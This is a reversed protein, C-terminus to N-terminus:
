AFLVSLYYFICLELIQLMFIAIPCLKEKDSFTALASLKRMLKHLMSSPGLFGHFPNRATFPQYGITINTSIFLVALPLLFFSLAHPVGAAGGWFFVFIINKTINPM